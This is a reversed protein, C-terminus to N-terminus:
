TKIKLDGNPKMYLDGKNLGENAAEKDNSYTRLNPFNILGGPKIVIIPTWNNKSKTSVSFEGEASIYIKQFNNQIKLSNDTEFVIKSSTTKLSSGIYDGGLIMKLRESSSSRNPGVNIENNKNNLVINFANYYGTDILYDTNFIEFKGTTGEVDGNPIIYFRSATEPSNSRFIYYGLSSEFSPQDFYKNAITKSEVNLTDSNHKSCSICLSLFFLLLITFKGKQCIVTFLM